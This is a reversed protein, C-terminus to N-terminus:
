QPLQLTKWSSPSTSFRWSSWCHGTLPHPQRAQRAPGHDTARALAAAVAGPAAARCRRSKLAIERGPPSGAIAIEAGRMAAGLTAADIEAGLMGALGGQGEILTASSRHVDQRHDERDPRRQATQDNWAQQEVEPLDLLPLARLLPPLAMPRVPPASMASLVPM